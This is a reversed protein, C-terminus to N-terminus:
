VGADLEAHWAADSLTRLVALWVIGGGRLRIGGSRLSSLLNARSYVVTRRAWKAHVFFYSISYSPLLLSSQLLTTRSTLNIGGGFRRHTRASKINGCSFSNALRVYIRLHFESSLVLFYVSIKVYIVKNDFTEDNVCGCRSSQWAVASVYATCLSSARQTAAIHFYMRHLSTVSDIIVIRDGNQPYLV